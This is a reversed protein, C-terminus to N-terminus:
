LQRLRPDFRDRLWDGIFNVSMVVLLIATGPFVSIWWEGSNLYGQGDSVMNGWTPINSPVGAGLYSLSAETLVGTRRCAINGARRHHQRREANHTPGHNPPKLRRCSQVSLRVRQDQTDTDRSQCQSCKRGLKRTIPARTTIPREPRRYHRRTNRHAPIAPREMRRRTADYNRRLTRRLLRQRTRPSIRHLHRDRASIAAVTLSVRGGYMIRTLVDRGLHDAGLIYRAELRPNDAYWETYWFPPAGRGRLNIEEEGFPAVWPALITMGVLVVVIAIPLLPWRRLVHFFRGRFDDQVTRVQASMVDSTSATTPALETAM